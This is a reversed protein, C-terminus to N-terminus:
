DQGIPKFTMNGQDGKGPRIRRDEGRQIRAPRDAELGKILADQAEESLGDFVKLLRRQRETLLQPDRRGTLLYVVDVGAAALAELYDVSPRRKAAEYNHQTTKAVGVLAAFAEQNLRKAERLERLRLCFNTSHSYEEQLTTM